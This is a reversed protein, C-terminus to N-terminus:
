DATQDLQVGRRHGFTEIEKQNVNIEAKRPQVTEPRRRTEISRSGPLPWPSMGRLALFLLSIPRTFFVSVDGAYVAMTRVLNKEALSGLVIGILM